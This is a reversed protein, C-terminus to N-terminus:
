QPDNREGIFSHKANLSGLRGVLEPFSTMAGCFREPVRNTREDLLGLLLHRIVSLTGSKRASTQRICKNSM